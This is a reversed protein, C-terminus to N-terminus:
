SSRQSTKNHKSVQSTKMLIILYKMRMKPPNKILSKKLNNQLKQISTALRTKLILKISRSSNKKKMSKLKFHKVCITTRQKPLRRLRARLNKKRRILSKL